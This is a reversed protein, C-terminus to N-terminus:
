QGSTEMTECRQEGEVQIEGAVKWQPPGTRVMDNLLDVHVLTPRDDFPLIGPKIDVTARESAPPRITVRSRPPIPATKIQSKREHTDIWHDFARRLLPFALCLTLAGGFVAGVAFMILLQWPAYRFLDM